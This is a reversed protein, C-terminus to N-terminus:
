VSQVWALSVSSRATGDMQLRLLKRNSLSHATPNGSFIREDLRTIGAANNPAVGGDM